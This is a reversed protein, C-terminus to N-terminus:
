TAFYPRYFLAACPVYIVSFAIYLSASYTASRDARTLINKIGSVIIASILAFLGAYQGLLIIIKQDGIDENQAVDHHRSYFSSISADQGFFESGYAIALVDIVFFICFFVLLSTAYRM